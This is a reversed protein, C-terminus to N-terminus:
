AAKRDFLDSKGGSLEFLNQALTELAETEDNLIYELGDLFLPDTEKEGLGMCVVRLKLAVVGFKEALDRVDQKIDKSQAM